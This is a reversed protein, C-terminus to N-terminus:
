RFEEPNVMSLTVALGYLVYTLGFFLSVAAFFLGTQVRELANGVLTPPARGSVPGSAWLDALSKTAFGDIAISVMMLTAGLLAVALGPRGLAWGAGATISSSLAVLGGVFLVVALIIGLHIAEWAPHTTILNLAVEPDSPLVPHLLNVAIALLAGV